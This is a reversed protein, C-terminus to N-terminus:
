CGTQHPLLPRAIVTHAVGDALWTTTESARTLAELAPTVGSGEIVMCSFSAAVEPQMDAFPTTFPWPQEAVFEGFPPEAKAFVQLRDPTFVEGRQTATAEDLLTMMSQMILTRADNSGDFGLAYISILHEGADDFYRLTTTPADAVNRVDNINLEDVDEIGLDGVFTMLDQFAEEGLQYSLLTDIAPGPFIAPTPGMAVMSGNSFVTFRPVNRLNFEVPVFGGEISFDLIVGNHGDPVAIPGDENGGGCAFAIISVVSILSLTRLM